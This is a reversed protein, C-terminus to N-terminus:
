TPLLFSLYRPRNNMGKISFNFLCTKSVPTKKKKKEKEKEEKEKAAKKKAKEKEKDKKKKAAAAASAADAPQGEESAMTQKEVTVSDNEEEIDSM